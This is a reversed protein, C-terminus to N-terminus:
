GHLADLCGAMVFLVLMCLHTTVRGVFGMRLLSRVFSGFGDEAICFLLVGM